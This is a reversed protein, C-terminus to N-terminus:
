GKKNILFYKNILEIVENLFKNAPEIKQAEEFYKLSNDTDCYLWLMGLSVIDDISKPPNFNNELSKILEPCPCDEDNVDTNIIILPDEKLLKLFYERATTLDGHTIYCIILKKQVSNPINNGFAKSYADIAQNFNRSLFYHNGLMESMVLVTLCFAQRLFFPNFSQLSLYSNCISQLMEHM